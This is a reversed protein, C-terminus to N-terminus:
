DVVFSPSPWGRMGLVLVQLWHYGPVFIPRGGPPNFYGPKIRKLRKAKSSQVACLGELSLSEPKEIVSEDWIALITEGEARLEAVRQEAREWLYRVIEESSWGSAHLLRSIRKTGAPAQDPELL